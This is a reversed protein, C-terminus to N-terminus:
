SSVDMKDLELITQHDEVGEIRRWQTNNLDPPLHVHKCEFANLLM